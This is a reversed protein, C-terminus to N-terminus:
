QRGKDPFRQMLNDLARRAITDGDGHTGFRGRLAAELERPTLAWFAQPPLALLGLGIEM